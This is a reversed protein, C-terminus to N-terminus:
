VTEQGAMKHVVWPRPGTIREIAAAGIKPDENAAVVTGDGRKEAPAMELETDPDIAEPQEVVPIDVEEGEIEGVVAPGDPSSQLQSLGEVAATDPAEDITHSSAAQLVKGARPLMLVGVTVGTGLAM